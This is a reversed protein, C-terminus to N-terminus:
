VATAANTRPKAPGDTPADDWVCSMAFTGGFLWRTAAVRVTVSSRVPMSQPPQASVIRLARTLAFPTLFASTEKELFCATTVKSGFCVETGASISTTALVGLM